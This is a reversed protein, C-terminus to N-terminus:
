VNESSHGIVHRAKLLKYGVSSSLYLIISTWITTNLFPLDPTSPHHHIILTFSTLKLPLQVHEICSCVVKVVVSRDQYKERAAIVLGDVGEGIYHDLVLHGPFKRLKPHIFDDLAIAPDGVKPDHSIFPLDRPNKSMEM